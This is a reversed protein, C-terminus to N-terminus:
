VAERRVPRPTPRDESTSSSPGSTEILNLVDKVQIRMVRGVRVVPLRGSKILRYCTNQSIGLYSIVDRVSWLPNETTVESM